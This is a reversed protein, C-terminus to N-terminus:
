EFLLMGPKILSAFDNALVEDSSLLSFFALICRNWSDLLDEHCLSFFRADGFLATQALFITKLIWVMNLRIVSDKFTQIIKEPMESNNKFIKEIEDFFLLISLIQAIFPSENTILCFYSEASIINDQIRKPLSNCNNQRKSRENRLLTRFRAEIQNIAPNINEYVLKKGFSILSIAAWMKLQFFSPFSNVTPWITSCFNSPIVGQFSISKTSIFVSVSNWYSEFLYYINQLQSAKLKLVLYDNFKKAQCTYEFIREKIGYNIISEDYKDSLMDFDILQNSYQSLISKWTRYNHTTTSPKDYSYNPFILPELISLNQEQQNKHTIKIYFPQNEDFKYQSAEFGFPCDIGAMITTLFRIEKLTLIYDFDITRNNISLIDPMEFSSSSKLMAKLDFPYDKTEIMQSLYTLSENIKPLTIESYFWPSKALQLQLHPLILDFIYLRWLSDVDHALSFLFLLAIHHKPLFKLCSISSILLNIAVQDGKNSLFYAHKYGDLFLHQSFHVTASALFFPIIMFIFSNPSLYNMSERYFNYALNILENTSYYGFISPLLINCLGCFVLNGEEKCLFSAIIESNEFFCSIMFSIQQFDTIGFIDIGNIPDRMSNQIIESYHSGIKFFLLIHSQRNYYILKRNIERIENVVNNIYWDIRHPVSHHLYKYLCIDDDIM